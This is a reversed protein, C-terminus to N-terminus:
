NKSETEYCICATINADTDFALFVTTEEPILVVKEKLAELAEQMDSASPKTDKFYGSESITVRWETHNAFKNESFGTVETKLMATYIRLMPINEEQELANAM